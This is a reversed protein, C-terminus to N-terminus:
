NIELKATFRQVKQQNFYQEQRNEISPRSFLTTNKLNLLFNNLVSEFNESNDFVLGEIVVVNPENDDAKQKQQRPEFTMQMSILRINVPTINALENIVAIPLYRKVTKRVLDQQQGVRAFMATVLKKEAPPQFVSLRQNLKDVQTQKDDLLREQWTFVGILIVLLILCGTLIRMNIRSVSEAQDKDKHTYLVNPTHKNEAIALGIAPAYGEKEEQTDPTKVKQSFGDENSFPNLVSIPLELQNGIYQVVMPNACIQGSLLVQYVGEGHFTQTYHEFTREVQRILREIAPQLMRFVTAPPIQPTSSSDNGSRQYSYVFEQFLKKPEPPNQTSTVGTSQDDEGQLGDEIAHQINDVMSQMGAKIGRSLILNGKNYIAIRSWDRGVFLSCIDQGQQEILNTRLLNQIAFPAISIGKLPYGISEFAKKLDAVEKKPVKYSLVETKKVGQESIEGLIEYDLIEDKENFEVTKTFTWYVAKPVQKRPLKPIRLCRTEVKASPISAWIDFHTKETCFQKLNSKLLDLFAPDELSIEGGSRVTHYDLLENSKDSRRGVKALKIYTHGIDVGITIKKYGKISRIISDSGDMPRTADDVPLGTTAGSNDSRIM